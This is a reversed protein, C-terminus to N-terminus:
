SLPKCVFVCFCSVLIAYLCCIRQHLVRATFLGVVNVYVAKLCVFYSALAKQCFECILVQAPFLKCM